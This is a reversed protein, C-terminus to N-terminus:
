ITILGCSYVYSNNEDSRTESFVSTNWVETDYGTSDAPIRIIRTKADRGAWNDKKDGFSSITITPAEKGLFLIDGLLFCNGFTLNGITKLNPPLQVRTVRQAM